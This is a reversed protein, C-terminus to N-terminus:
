VKEFYSKLAAMQPHFYNLADQYWAQNTNLAPDLTTRLFNPYEQL